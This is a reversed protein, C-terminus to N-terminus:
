QYQQFLDDLGATIEDLVKFDDLLHSRLESENTIHKREEERRVAWNSVTQSLSLENTPQRQESPM